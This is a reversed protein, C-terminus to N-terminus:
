AVKGVAVGLNGQRAMPLIKSAYKELRWLVAAFRALACGNAFDLLGRQYITSQRARQRGLNGQPWSSATGIAEL